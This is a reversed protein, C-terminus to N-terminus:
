AEHNAFRRVFGSPIHEANCESSYISPSVLASSVDIM